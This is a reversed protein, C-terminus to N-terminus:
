TIGIFGGAAVTYTVSGSSPTVISFVDCFIPTMAATSMAGTPDYCIIIRALIEQTTPSWQPDNCDILTTDTADDVTVTVGSLPLRAYGQFTAEANGPAALLDTLTDYDQLTTEPQSTKLLL